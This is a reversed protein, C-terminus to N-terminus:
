RDDKATVVNLAPVTEISPQGSYPGAIAFTPNALKLVFQPTAQERPNECM